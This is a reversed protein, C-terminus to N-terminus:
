LHLGCETKAKGAWRGERGHGRSTCHVCGVSQYGEAILPHNPLEHLFYYTHVEEASMDLLPYCKLIDGKPELFHFSQRNANQYRFLGSLWIRHRARLDAMPEVKNIYCCLDQNHLYTFNNRTFRAKNEPASAIKIPLGLRERLLHMYDWTAEFHFGTDLFYVPHRPSVKSILHLLLASSAGFSSTVLIEDSSYRHFIYDLREQISLKEFESEELGFDHTM